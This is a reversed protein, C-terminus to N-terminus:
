LCMEANTRKTRNEVIIVCCVALVRSHNRRLLLSTIGRDKIESFIFVKAVIVCCPWEYHSIHSMMLLFCRFFHIDHGSMASMARTCYNPLSLSSPLSKTSFRCSVLLCIRLLPQFPCYMGFGVPPKPVRRSVNDPHYPGPVWWLWTCWCGSRGQWTGNCRGFIYANM